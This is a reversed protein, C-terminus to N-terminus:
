IVMPRKKKKRLETEKVINTQEETRRGKKIAAIIAILLMMCFFIMCGALIPINRRKGGFQCLRYLRQLFVLYVAATLPNILLLWFAKWSMRGKNEQM